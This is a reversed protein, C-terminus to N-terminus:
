HFLCTIIRPLQPLFWDRLKRVWIFPYFGGGIYPYTETTAAAAAHPQFQPVHRTTAAM